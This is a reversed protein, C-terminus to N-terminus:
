IQDNFIYLWESSVYLKTKEHKQTTVQMDTSVSERINNQHNKTLLACKPDKYM